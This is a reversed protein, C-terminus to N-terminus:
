LLEDGLELALIDVLEDLFAGGLKGGDWGAAGATTSSSTTSSGSGTASLIGRGSFLLLFLLLLRVVVHTETKEVLRM